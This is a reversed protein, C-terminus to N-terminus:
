TIIFFRYQKKKVNHYYKQFLFLYYRNEGLESKTSNDLADSGIVEGTRWVTAYRRLFDAELPSDNSIFQAQTASYVYCLDSVSHLQSM